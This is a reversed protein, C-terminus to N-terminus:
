EEFEECGAGQARRVALLRRGNERRNGRQGHRGEETGADEPNGLTLLDGARRDLRVVWPTVVEDSVEPLRQVLRGGALAPIEGEEGALASSDECGRGGRSWGDRVGKRRRRRIDGAVHDTPCSCQTM